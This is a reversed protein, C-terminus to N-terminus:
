VQFKGPLLGCRAGDEELLHAFTDYAELMHSVWASM